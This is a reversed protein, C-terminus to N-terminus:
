RRAHNEKAYATIKQATKSDAEIGKASMFHLLENVVTDYELLPNAFTLIYDLRNVIYARWQNPVQKDNMAIGRLAHIRQEIVAPRGGGAGGAALEGATLNLPSEDTTRAANASYAQDNAIHTKEHTMASAIMDPDTMGEGTPNLPNIDISYHRAALPGAPAGAAAGLPAIFATQSRGLAAPNHGVNPNVAPDYQNLETHVANLTKRRNHAHYAKYGGYVAGGLLAAGGAVALAPSSVIAGAALATAGGVAAVGTLAKKWFPVRQIIPENVSQASSAIPRLQFSINENFKKRQITTPRNDQLQISKKKSVSNEAIKSASAQHKRNLKNPSNKYM